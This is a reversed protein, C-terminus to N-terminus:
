FSQLKEKVIKIVDDLKFNTKILYNVVGLEQSQLIKSTEGLNSLMIVPINAGAASNRLQELMTMGDMVPMLIDLLILDPAEKLALELGEKGDRAGIVLFGEKSLRDTLLKLVAIEDEVVLIKKQNTM